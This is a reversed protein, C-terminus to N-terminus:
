VQKDRISGPRFEAVGVEAFFLRSRSDMRRFESEKCIATCPASAKALSFIINLRFMPDLSRTARM